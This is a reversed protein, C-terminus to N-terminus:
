EDKGVGPIQPVRVATQNTTQQSMDGILLKERYIDEINQGLLKSDVVIPIRPLTLRLNQFKPFHPFEPIPEGKDQMFYTIGIGIEAIYKGNPTPALNNDNFKALDVRVQSPVPIFWIRNSGPLITEYRYAPPMNPGRKDAPIAPMAPSINVGNENILRVYFLYSINDRMIFMFNKDQSLNMVEIRFGVTLETSTNICEARVVADKNTGTVMKNEETAACYGSLITFIVIVLVSIIKKKYNM